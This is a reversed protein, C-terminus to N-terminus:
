VLDPSRVDHEVVLSLSALREFVALNPNLILIESNPNSKGHSTM